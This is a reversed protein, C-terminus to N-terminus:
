HQRVNRGPALGHQAFLRGRRRLSDKPMQITISPADATRGMGATVTFNDGHRVIQLRPENKEPLTADKTEGGQTLRYQLTIHGDAHIAIDAYPSGPDLSARFMLMGKSIRYSFPPNIHVDAALSADGSIRTWVFRFDDAAGWVDAGGGAIEYTGTAPNYTTTGRQASGIDTSTRFPGQPTSEPQPAPFVFALACALVQLARLM